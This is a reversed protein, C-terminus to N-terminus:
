DLKGLGYVIFECKIGVSPRPAFANLKFHLFADLGLSTALRGDFAHATPCMGALKVGADELRCEPLKTPPPLGLAGKCMLPDPRRFAIEAIVCTREGFPSVVCTVTLTTRLPTPPPPDGLVRKCFDADWDEVNGVVTAGPSVTDPFLGM